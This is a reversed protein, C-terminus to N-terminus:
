STPTLGLALCVKDAGEGTRCNTFTVSTKANITHVDNGLKRIDVNMQSALDIKNIV